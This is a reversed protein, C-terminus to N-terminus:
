PRATLHVAELESEFQVSQYGIEKLSNMLQFAKSLVTLKTRVLMNTKQESVEQCCSCFLCPHLDSTSIRLRISQYHCKIYRRSWAYVGSKNEKRKKGKAQM